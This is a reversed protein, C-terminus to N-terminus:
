VSSVMSNHTSAMSLEIDTEFISVGQQLFREILWRPSGAPARRVMRGSIADAGTRRQSTILDALWESDPVCDDDTMAVWDSLPLASELAVNRAESINQRGALRYHVGVELQDRFQAVVTAARQDPNDDVIVAGVRCLHRAADAAVVLGQLLRRLQDNRQYTCVAVVVTPRDDLAARTRAPAQETYEAM